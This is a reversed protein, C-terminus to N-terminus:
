RKQYVRVYDVYYSFPFDAASTQNINSSTLALNLLIYHNRHFEDMAPDTISVSGLTKDNCYFRIQQADWEMGIVLWDNSLNGNHTYTGIGKGKHGNDNWHITAHYKSRNTGYAELIDIEGTRPWYDGNISKGLTWFAPWAAKCPTDPLKARMEFVGYKWDYNGETKISASTYNANRKQGHQSGWDNVIADVGDYFEKIATIVLNGNEVKLNESRRRTYCQPENNRAFGREYTWNGEDLTTGNFEDNWVLRYNPNNAFDNQGLHSTDAKTTTPRATFTQKTPTPKGSTPKTTAVTSKTTTQGQPQTAVTTTGQADTQGQTQTATEGVPETGDTTGAATTTSNGATASPQTTATADDVPEKPTCAALSIVTCVCLLLAFLRKIKM